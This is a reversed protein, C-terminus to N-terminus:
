QNNKYLHKAMSAFIQDIQDSSADSAIHIQIDIHLSPSAGVTSQISTNSQIPVADAIVDNQRQSPQPRSKPTAGKTKRPVSKINPKANASRQPNADTLLEYLSAMKLSASAGGGTKRAFWRKAGEMESSPNPIASRLEDPYIEELIEQCVERYTDDHRWREARETPSNKEDVLKLGRLARLVNKAASEGLNLTTELYTRTVINPISNQFKTRLAWWNAEPLMPYSSRENDSM